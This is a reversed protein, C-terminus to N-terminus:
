QEYTTWQSATVTEDTNTHIQAVIVTIDDAKGRPEFDSYYKKAERAFPSLYGATDGLQEAKVAM